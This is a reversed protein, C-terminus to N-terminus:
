RMSRTALAHLRVLRVAAPRHVEDAFREVVPAANSCPGGDVVAAVKRRCDLDVRQEAACANGAYEVSSTFQASERLRDDYVVTGLGDALCEVGLGVAASDLEVEDSRAFGDRLRKGLPEMPPEALFAEVLVDEGLHGLGALQDARPVGVVVPGPRVTRESALTRDLGQRAATSPEGM